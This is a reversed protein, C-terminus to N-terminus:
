DNSKPTHFANRPIRKGIPLTAGMGDFLIRLYGSWGRAVAAAALTYQPTVLFILFTVELSLDWGIIWAIFEGVVTYAYTYASGSIPARTSFESYCLASFICAVGAFAYSFIVAPGAKTAAAVGSHSYITTFANGTLVFIGAGIIEGLGFALVDWINLTKHLSKQESDQRVIDISKSRLLM